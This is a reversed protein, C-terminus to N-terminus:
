LEKELERSTIYLPNSLEVGAETLEAVSLRLLSLRADRIRAIDLAIRRQHERIRENRKTNRESIAPYETTKSM